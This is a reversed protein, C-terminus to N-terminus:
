QEYIEEFKKSVVPWNYKTEVLMRSNRGFEQLMKKDKLLLVLKQSLDEINGIEVIMGNGNVLTRPGPLNSVVIPKACAMAEVLVLGFAESSTISPLVCVDALNYYKPLDQNSVKGAFIVGESIGLSRALKEYRPKLNGKGVILLKINLTKFEPRAIAKLLIKIGKFYHARDLGGVFLIIKEGRNLNHKELLQNDKSQPTFKDIDAGMPVEFFKKENNSLYRGIKSHRAYDLSSVVIKDAARVLLPVFFLSYLNFFLGRWGRDILDMQYQIVLPTKLRGFIKSLLVSEAGIFPWNLHIINFNKLYKTIQPVFAANGFKFIPKLFIIKFKQNELKEGRYDPTFVTVGHGHKILERVQSYCANGMGGPYPPFTSTLHAIKM